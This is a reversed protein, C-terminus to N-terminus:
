CYVYDPPIVPRPGLRARYNNVTNDANDNDNHNNDDSVSSYSQKTYDVNEINNEANEMEIFINENFNSLIANSKARKVRDRTIVKRLHEIKLKLKLAIFWIIHLFLKLPDM